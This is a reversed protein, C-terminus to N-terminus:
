LLVEVGESRINMISDYFCTIYIATPTPIVNPGGGPPPVAPLQPVNKINLTIM